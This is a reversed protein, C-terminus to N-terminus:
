ILPSYQDPRVTFPNGELLGRTRPLFWALGHMVRAFGGPQRAHEAFASFILNRAPKRNPDILMAVKPADLNCTDKLFRAIARRAVAPLIVETPAQIITEGNKVRPDTGSLRRIDLSDVPDGLFTEYFKFACLDGYSLLFDPQRSQERYLAVGLGHELCGDLVHRVTYLDNKMKPSALRLHFHPLEYPGPVTQPKGAIMAADPLNDFFESKWAGDREDQSYSFLRNVEETRLHDPLHSM